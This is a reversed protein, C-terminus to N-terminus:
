GEDIDVAAQILQRVAMAPFFADGYRKVLTQATRGWQFHSASFQAFDAARPEGSSFSLCSDVDLDGPHIAPNIYLELVDVAPFDDPIGRALSAHRTGLHGSSNQLLETRLDQRWEDLFDGIVGSPLTRIGDILRRGYGAKALESAVVVGCGQLGAKPYINLSVAGECELMNFGSVSYDGGSLLAVFILDEATFGLDPHAAVDEAHYLLLDTQKTSDEPGNERAVRLAGFLMADSDETLVLDFIGARSMRALEVEAEGSAASHRFGYGDLMEKFPEVLWHDSGRVIKDRKVNPREPGDFVFSPTVPLQALRECRLHLATLEPSQTQGHRAKAACIWHSADIGVWLIRDGHFNGIFGQKVAHHHFSIRTSAPELLQWLKNVGM